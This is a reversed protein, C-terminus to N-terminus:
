IIECDIDASCLYEHKDAWFQELINEKIDEDSIDGPNCEKWSKRYEEVEEKTVTIRVTVTM